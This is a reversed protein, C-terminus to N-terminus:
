SGVTAIGSADTVVTSGSVSGGGSLVAFTVTEGGMPSGYQDKVIVSPPPTVAAGAAGAVSTSSNASLTTAVAPQTQDGKCSAFALLLLTSALRTASVSIRKLQDMPHASRSIM